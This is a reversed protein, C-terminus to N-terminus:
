QQVVLAIRIRAGRVVRQLCGRKVLEEIHEHATSLAIGLERAVQRVTPGEEQPTGAGNTLRLYLEYVQRQRSTLEKRPETPASL